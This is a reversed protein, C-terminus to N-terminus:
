FTKGIYMFPHTFDVFKRRRETISLDMVVIDAQQLIFFHKKFCPLLKESDVHIVRDILEKIAGNWHGEEDQKGSVGDYM